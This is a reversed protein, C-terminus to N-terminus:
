NVCLHLIELSTQEKKVSVGTQYFTLKKKKLDNKFISKELLRSLNYTHSTM